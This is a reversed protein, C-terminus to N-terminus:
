TFSITNTARQSTAGRWQPALDEIDGVTADDNEAAERAFDCAEYQVTAVMYRRRDRKERNGEM